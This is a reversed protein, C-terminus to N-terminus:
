ALHQPRRKAAEVAERAREFATGRAARTSRPLPEEVPGVGVGIHWSGERVLDLIVGVVSVEDDLLGQFEDGATREFRLLTPVPALRALAGDM